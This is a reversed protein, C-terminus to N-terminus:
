VVCCCVFRHVEGVTRRGYGLSLKLRDRRGSGTQQRSGPKIAAPSRRGGDSGGNGGSDGGHIASIKLAKLFRIKLWM